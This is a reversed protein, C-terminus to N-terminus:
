VRHRPVFRSYLIRLLGYNYLGLATKLKNKIMLAEKEM